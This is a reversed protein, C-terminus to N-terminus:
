IKGALALVRALGQDDEDHNHDSDDCNDYNECRYAWWTTLIMMMMM